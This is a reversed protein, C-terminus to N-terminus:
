ASNVVSQKERADRRARWGAPRQRAVFEALAWVLALVLLNSGVHVPSGLKWSRWATLAFGISLWGAQTRSEEVFGRAWNSSTLQTWLRPANAVPGLLRPVGAEYAGYEAPFRERLFVEEARIIPLHASAWLLVCPLTWYPLCAIQCAGVIQLLNGIYRPNRTYAYPGQSTLLYEREATGGGATGFWAAVGWLRMGLGLCLLAWGGMVASWTAAGPTALWLALLVLPVPILGRLPFLKRGLREWPGVARDKSDYRALEGM